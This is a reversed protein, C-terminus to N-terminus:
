REEGHSSTLEDELVLHLERRCTRCRLRMRERAPADLPTLQEAGCAPCAGHVDLAIAHERMRQRALLPGLVLMGPVLVFHLVPVLVFAVALGWCGLLARLARGTRERRSLHRLRLVAATDPRGIYTLRTAHETPPAPEGHSM